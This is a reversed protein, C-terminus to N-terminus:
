GGTQLALRVAQAMADITYPKALAGVFGHSQHDVMILDSHDGSCALLRARPDLRLLEQAVEAGGMGAPIHADVIVLAFPKGQALAEEYVQLANEGSSVVTAQYGLHELISSAMNCVFPDDDLILINGAQLSDQAPKQPYHVDATDIAEQEIAADTVEGTDKQAPMDLFLSVGLQLAQQLEALDGVGRGQQAEKARDVVQQAVLAWRELGAQLLTGKITHGSEAVQRYDRHGLAQRCEDLLRALNQQLLVLARETQEPTLGSANQLFNRVEVQNAPALVANMPSQSQVTDGASGQVTEATGSLKSGAWLRGTLLMNLQEPQFPKTLYDDMGAALCMRQDDSMAHATMAIIPLRESGGLQRSLRKMLDADLTQSLPDGHELARIIRTVALGDLVPMQVDMLICDFREAGALLHLAQMGDGATSVRHNKELMLQVLERNAENDDVVLIHLGNIARGKKQAPAFREEVEDPSAELLQITFHFTSGQGLASEVWIAGGMLEVLQRSIALGLGTGSYRRM